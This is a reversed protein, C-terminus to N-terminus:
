GSLVLMQQSSRVQNGLHSKKLYCCWPSRRHEKLLEKGICEKHITRQAKLTEQDDVLLRQLLRLDSVDEISRLMPRIGLQMGAELEQDILLRGLHM